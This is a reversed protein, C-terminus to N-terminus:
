CYLLLLYPSAEFEGFNDRWRDPVNTENRARIHKSVLNGAFLFVDVSEGEEDHCCMLINGVLTDVIENTEERIFLGVLKPKEAKIKGNGDLYIDLGYKLGLETSTYGEFTDCGIAKHFGEITNDIEAVKPLAESGDFLLVKIKEMTKEKLTMSWSM